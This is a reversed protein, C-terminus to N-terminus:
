VIVRVALTSGTLIGWALLFTTTSALGTVIVAWLALQTLGYGILGGAVWGAAHRRGFIAFGIPLGAAAALAFLLVYIWGALGGGLIWALALVAGSFLMAPAIM